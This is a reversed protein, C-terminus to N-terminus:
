VVRTGWSPKLEWAAPESEDAQRSGGRGLLKCMKRGRGGFAASEWAKDPQPGILM